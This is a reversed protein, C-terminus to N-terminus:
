FGIGAASVSVNFLNLADQELNACFSYGCEFRGDIEYSGDPLPRKIVTGTMTGIQSRLRPFTFIANPTVEAIRMHSVQPAWEQAAAWMAECQKEGKCVPAPHMAIPEATSKRAIPACAGIFIAATIMIARRLKTM